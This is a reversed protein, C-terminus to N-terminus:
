VWAEDAAALVAEALPGFFSRTTTFFGPLKGAEDPLLERRAAARIKSQDGHYSAWDLELARRHAARADRLRAVNLGLIEITRAARAPDVGESRCAAPDAMIEGDGLVRFLSPSAPVTRPDLFGPASTDGKAHGCSRHLRPPLRFRTSDGRIDPHHPMSANGKCCAIMNTHDLARETGGRARDSRPIVHEVERDRPHLSIECYGCLGHQISALADALARKAGSSGRHSGFGEWTAADSEQDCYDSLGPTAAELPNIRKM